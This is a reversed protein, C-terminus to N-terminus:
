CGMGIRELFYKVDWNPFIINNGPPPFCPIINKFHIKSSDHLYKKFHKPLKQSFSFVLM